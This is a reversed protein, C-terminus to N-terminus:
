RTVASWVEPSRVGPRIEGSPVVIRNEWLVASTTVHAFPTEGNTEWRDTQPDYALIDRRFGKHQNPPATLQAGDDGGLVLLLGDILPAPTPAAVAARPLDALRKWGKGPSYSWAEHLWDRVPKGDTGPHLAAGGFVFLSGGMTGATAFIRGAGPLPELTRWVPQSSSLDLAVLSNLANTADPTAMGGFIFATDGVLAGSSNARPQPMEPLSKTELRGNKWSLRFVSSHHGTFDSGGFCVLGRQHSITVGYGLPKPLKGAQQWPGDPKELVFIDSHWVKTGGDWPMKWPFNAGGAVLLSGDSVGAFAGAVGLPSPIPALKEWHFEAAALHSSATGVFLVARLCMLLDFSVRKLAPVAGFSKAVSTLQLLPVFM